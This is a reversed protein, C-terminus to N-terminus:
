GVMQRVWETISQNCWILAAQPYIGLLFMLGIAPALVLREPVSLDPLGNWRPELPGHFMRQMMNLFFIATFLLGLVAVSAALPQLEFVGRFILFEGIFGNLGPLGLSAFATIGWLGCFIPVIRRLGGFQDVSRIGKTRKELLAVFAFLSAAIIGHNLVQLVGGAMAAHMAKQSGSPGAVTVALVALVIYGLHNISSYGFMRKLDTQQTAIAASVVISLLVPLVLWPFLRTLEHPFIPAILRILAYVGMKSMAGTLLMTVPTPASAYTEPLWSHLPYVPIKVAVGVFAALALILALRDAHDKWVPLHSALVASWGQERGIASWSSFEMTGTLLYLGAFTALLAVSGVMTYVFFRFAIARRDDSGWFYVLLFAPILSVEWFLFWLLFNLATFTGLLGMELLLILGGYKGGEFWAPESMWLAFPVLFITLFLFILGIGDVGLHYMASIAPIWAHQEEWQMGGQNPSFGIGIRVMVMGALLAVALTWRRHWQASAKRGVFWEALAGVLPVAILVTLWPIGDRITGGLVM